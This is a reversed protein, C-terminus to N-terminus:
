PEKVMRRHKLKMQTINREDEKDPIETHAANIAELMKQNNHQRIFDRAALSFIRSRSVKMEAALSEIEEFLPKDISIATKINAM